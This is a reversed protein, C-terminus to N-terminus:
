RLIRSGSPNIAYQVRILSPIQGNYYAFVEIVIRGYLQGNNLRLYFRKEGTSDGWGSGVSQDFQFSPGYGEKPASYMSSNSNSEELLGGNIAAVECSWDYKRGHVIEAPRKIWVKLDGEGAQGITGNALDIVYVRGDPVIQFKNEGAILREHVNTSWMKFVVPDEFSGGTVGYSRQGPELEYGDKGLYEISLGDGTVGNIDFHGDSDTEREIHIPRSVANETLEWHRIYIQIKVGALANSDEDIVQGYFAVPINKEELAEKLIEARNQSNDQTAGPRPQEFPVPGQNTYANPSVFSATSVFNTPQVVENEPKIKDSHRALLVLLVLVICAALAFCIWFRSKM